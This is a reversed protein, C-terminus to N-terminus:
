NDDDENHSRSFLLDFFPSNMLDCQQRSIESPDLSFPLKYEPPTDWRKHAFQRPARERMKEYVSCNAIFWKWSEIRAAELRYEARTIGLPYKRHKEQLALCQRGEMCRFLYAEKGFSDPFDRPHGYLLIHPIVEIFHEVGYMIEGGIRDLFKPTLYDALDELKDQTRKKQIEKLVNQVKKAIM